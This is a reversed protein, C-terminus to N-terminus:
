FAFERPEAVPSYCMIPPLARLSEENEYIHRAQAYTEDGALTIEAVRDILAEEQGSIEEQEMLGWTDWLLLEMKNLAALDQIVKSRIFWWGKAESQANVGFKEPDAKGARCRQWVKGALIFKHRPVDLVDFNLLKNEAIHAASMEPDVLLWRREAAKWYEVIEHDHNFQSNFYTSFGVRVRVPINLYRAMACFLTAFDRCCGVLRKAPPREVTLPRADLEHIRALMKEVSRTDIESLRSEPIHYNFRAGGHYHLILGQVVRCLGAIDSPLDGFLYLYDGPDTIASQEKYYAQPTMDLKM